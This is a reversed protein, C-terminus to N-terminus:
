VPSAVSVLEAHTSSRRPQSAFKTPVRDGRQASLRRDCDATTQHVRQLRHLCSSAVVTSNTQQLKSAIGLLRILRCLVDQTTIGRCRQTHDLALARSALRSMDLQFREEQLLPARSWFHSKDVHPRAFHKSISQCHCLRCWIRDM